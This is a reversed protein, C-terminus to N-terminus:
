KQWNHIIVRPNKERKEVSFTLKKKHTCTHLSKHKDARPAASMVYGINPAGGTVHVLRTEVVKPQSAITFYKSEEGKKRLLDLRNRNAIIFQHFGYRRIQFTRITSKGRERGASRLNLIKKRRYSVPRSRALELGGRRM